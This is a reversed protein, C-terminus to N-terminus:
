ADGGPQERYPAFIKEFLTVNWWAILAFGCVLWVVGLFAFVNPLLLFLVVPFLNTATIVVMKPLHAISLLVGNIVAEKLTCPFQSLMPFVMGSFMLLAVGLFCIVCVLVMYGTFQLSAVITYDLFLAAALVAILLWLGTTRLFDQRFSRLFSAAGCDEGRRLAFLNAYLAKTAAGATVVPICLLLWLINTCAIDVFKGMLIMFKSDPSFANNSPQSM